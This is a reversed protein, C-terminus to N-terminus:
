LCFLATEVILTDPLSNLEKFKAIDSEDEMYRGIRIVHSM